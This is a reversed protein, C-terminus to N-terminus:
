LSNNIKVHSIFQLIYSHYDSPIEALKGTLINVLKKSKQRDDLKKIMNEFEYMSHVPVLSRLCTFEGIFNDEHVGNTCPEKIDQDNTTVHSSFCAFESDPLRTYGSPAKNENTGDKIIDQPNVKSDVEKNIFIDLDPELQAIIHQRKNKNKDDHKLHIAVVSSLTELTETETNADDFFGVEIWRDDTNLRFKVLLHGNIRKISMNLQTQLNYDKTNEIISMYHFCRTLILEYAERISAEKLMEVVDSIEEQSLSKYHEVMTIAPSTCKAFKKETEDSM